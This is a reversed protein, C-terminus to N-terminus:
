CRNKKNTYQKFLKLINQKTDLDAQTIGTGTANAIKTDINVGGILLTNCSILGPVVTGISYTDSLVIM